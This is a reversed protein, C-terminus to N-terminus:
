LLSPIDRFSESMDRHEVQIGERKRKILDILEITKTFYDIIKSVGSLESLMITVNLAGKERPYDGTRIIAEPAIRRLHTGIDKVLNM